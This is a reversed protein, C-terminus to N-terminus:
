SKRRFRTLVKRKAFLGAFLPSRDAGVVCLRYLWEVFAVRTYRSRAAKLWSFPRSGLNEWRKATVLITAHEEDAITFRKPFILGSDRWDIVSFEEFLIKSYLRLVQPRIDEKYKMRVDVGKRRLWALCFAQESGLKMHPLCHGGLVAVPRPYALEDEEFWSHNWYDVLDARTGFMVLDSPNMAAFPFLEPNMVYLSPMTIPEKLLFQGAERHRVRCMAPSSLFIDARMKLVYDRTALELGNKTALSLRNINSGSKFGGPDSSAVLRVDPPLRGVEETDWTSIIIEADPLHERVTRISRLVDCEGNNRFLTGHIVVSIDTSPIDRWHPTNRLVETIPSQPM